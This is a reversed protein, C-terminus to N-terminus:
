GRGGPGGGTGRGARHHRDLVDRVAVLLHHREVADRQVHRGADHHADDARVADALRRQQRQDGPRLLHLLPRDGDEVAVDGADLVPAADTRADRVHRLTEALVQVELEADVVVDVEHRAQEPERGGLALDAHLLQEGRRAASRGAPFSDPPM